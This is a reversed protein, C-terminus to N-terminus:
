IFCFKFTIEFRILEMSVRSRSTLWAMFSWTYMLGLLLFSTMDPPSLLGFNEKGFCCRSSGDGVGIQGFKLYLPEPASIVLAKKSLAYADEGTAEKKWSAQCSCGYGCLCDGHEFCSLELHLFKKFSINVSGQPILIGTWLAFLQGDQSSLTPSAM